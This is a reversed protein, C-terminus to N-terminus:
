RPSKTEDGTRNIAMGPISRKKLSKILSEMEEIYHNLATIGKFTIAISTLPKDNKFTKKIKIYQAAKLKKLQISLNGSTFSLKKQLDNFSTEKDDMSALHTLILLRTREHILKDLEPM